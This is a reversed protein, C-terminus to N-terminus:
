VFLDKILFFHAEVMLQSTISDATSGVFDAKCFWLIECGPLNYLRRNNKFNTKHQKKKICLIYM